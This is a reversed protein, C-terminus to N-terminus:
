GTPDSRRRAPPRAPHLLDLVEDNVRQRAQLRRRTTAVQDHHGAVAAAADPLATALAPDDWALTRAGAGLEGTLAAVKPDYSLAVLPRGALVAGIAAHYRMAIVVEGTAIEDLVTHVDPRALTAPARMRAAVAQHLPHDRVPDLAVFHVALGTSAAAADVGAAVADIVREPTQQRRLHVPLRRRTSTWPRLSVVLRGQPPGTPPGLGLALDAGLRPHPLGLGRLVTASPADRVAVADLRPLVRRVLTRGLHTHLPGAGLGVGVAPITRPAALLRALHYPLNLDSTRDQLLGGGGFVVAESHRLAGLADPRHADVADVGHTSETAAPDVSLVVPEHGHDRLRAVLAALILEDGLNTSGAWAAVTVRM